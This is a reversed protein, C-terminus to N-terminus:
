QSSSRDTWKVREPTVSNCIDQARPIDGAYLSTFIKFTYLELVNGRIDVISPESLLNNDIQKLLNALTIDGQLFVGFDEKLEQKPQIKHKEEREIYGILAGRRKNVLFIPGALVNKLDIGMINGYLPYIVFYAGYWEGNSVIEIGVIANGLIKYLKRPTFLRLEPFFEIWAKIVARKIKDDIAM